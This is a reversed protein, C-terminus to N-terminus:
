QFTRMFAIVDLMEDSTLLGDYGPMSVRGDRIVEFLETDSKLLEDWANLRKIGAIGEGNSGHCYECNKAYVTAGSMLDAADISLSFGFVLAVLLVLRSCVGPLRALVSRSM